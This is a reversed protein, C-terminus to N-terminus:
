KIQTLDCMTKMRTGVNPQCVQGEGYKEDTIEEDLSITDVNSREEEESHVSESKVTIQERRLSKHRLARNLKQEFETIMNLTYLDEEEEQQQKLLHDKKAAKLTESNNADVTSVM